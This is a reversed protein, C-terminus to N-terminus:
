GSGLGDRRDQHLRPVGRSTSATVPSSPPARRPPSPPRSRKPWGSTSTSRPTTSCRRPRRRCPTSNWRPSRRAPWRRRTRRPRAARASGDPLPAPSRSPSRTSTARCRASAPSAVSRRCRRSGAASRASPGRPCSTAATPASRWRSGSSGGSGTRTAAACMPTSPPRTSSIIASRGRGRAAWRRAVAALVYQDIARKQEDLAKRHARGERADVDAVSGKQLEDLKKDNGEKFTEFTRRFRRLCRRAGARGVRSGAGQRPRRRRGPM